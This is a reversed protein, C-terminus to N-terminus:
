AAVEGSEIMRSALAVGEDDGDGYTLMEGRAEAEILRVIGPFAEIAIKGVQLGLGIERIFEAVALEHERKAEDVDEPYVEGVEELGELADIRTAGLRVSYIIDNLRAVTERPCRTYALHYSRVTASHIPIVSNTTARSM